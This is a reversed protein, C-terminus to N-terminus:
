KVGVAGRSRLRKLALGGIGLLMLATTTPEPVPQNITLSAFDLAFQDVPATLNSGDIVLILSGMSGATIFSRADFTHVKVSEEFASAAEGTSETLFDGLSVPGSGSDAFVKAFGFGSDDTRRGVSGSQVMLVARDISSLATTDWAFTFSFVYPSWPEQTTVDTAAAGSYFGPAIAPSSFVAFADGAQSQGGQTGGFGDDDGVNVTVTAAHAGLAFLCSALLSWKPAYM